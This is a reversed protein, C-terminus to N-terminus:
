GNTVSMMKDVKNMDNAALHAIFQLEPGEGGGDARGEPGHQGLFLQFFQSQVFRGDFDPYSRPQNV